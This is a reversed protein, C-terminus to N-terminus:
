HAPASATAPAHASASLSVMAPESFHARGTSLEYFAGVFGLRGGQALHRLAASGELLDNISDEVNKLIAARIRSADPASATAAV